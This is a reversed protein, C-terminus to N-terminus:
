RPAGPSRRQKEEDGTDRDTVFPEGANRDIGREPPGAERGRENRVHEEMERLREGIPRADNRMAARRPKAAPRLTKRARAGDREADKPMERVETAM